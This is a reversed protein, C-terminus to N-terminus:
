VSLSPTITAASGNAYFDHLVRGELPDQHADKPWAM